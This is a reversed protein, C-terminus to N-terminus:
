AEETSLLSINLKSTCLAFPNLFIWLNIWILILYSSTKAKVKRDDDCDMSDEAKISRLPVPLAAVDSVGSKNKRKKNKRKVRLQGSRGRASGAHFAFVSFSTCLRSAREM